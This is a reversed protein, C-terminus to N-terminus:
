SGGEMLSKILHFNKENGFLKALNETKPKDVDNSVNENVLKRKM